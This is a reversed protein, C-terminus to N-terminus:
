KHGNKPNIKKWKQGNKGSKIFKNKNMKQENIKTEVKYELNCPCKFSYNIGPKSCPDVSLKLKPSYYQSVTLNRWAVNLKYEPTDSKIIRQLKYM